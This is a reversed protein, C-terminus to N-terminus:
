IVRCSSTAAATLSPARGPVFRCHNWRAMGYRQCILSMSYKSPGTSILSQAGSAVAVIALGEIASAQRLFCGTLLQLVGKSASTLGRPSSRGRRRRGAPRPGQKLNVPRRALALTRAHRLQSPQQRVM